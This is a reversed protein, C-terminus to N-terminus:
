FDVGVPKETRPWIAVSLLSFVSFCKFYDAPFAEGDIGHLKFWSKGEGYLNKVQCTFATYLNSQERYTARKIRCFTEKPILYTAKCM